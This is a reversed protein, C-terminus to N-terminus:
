RGEEKDKQALECIFDFTKQELIVPECPITFYTASTENPECVTFPFQKKSEYIQKQKKKIEMYLKYGLEGIGYLGKYIDLIEKILMQERLVQMDKAIKSAIETIVNQSENNEVSELVDKKNLDKIEIKNEKM